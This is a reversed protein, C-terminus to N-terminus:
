NNQSLISVYDKKIGFICVKYYMQCVTVKKLATERGVGPMVVQHCWNKSM